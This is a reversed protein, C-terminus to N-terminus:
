KKIVNAQNLVKRFEQADSDFITVRLARLSPVVTNAGLGHIQSLTWLAPCAAVKIMGFAHGFRSRAHDCREMM